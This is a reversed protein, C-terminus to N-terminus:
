AAQAQDQDTPDYEHGLDMAGHEEQPPVFGSAKQQTPGCEVFQCKALASEIATLDAVWTPAIRYIFATKLM